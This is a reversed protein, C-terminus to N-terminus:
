GMMANRNRKAHRSPLVFLAAGILACVGQWIQAGVFGERTSVDGTAALAVPNGILAGLGAAGYILGIRTGLNDADPSIFPIVTAPLTAVMGSTIGIFVLFEIFGGLTAVTIWHLGLLGVLIQAALLM